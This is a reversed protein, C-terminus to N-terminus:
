VHEEVETKNSSISAVKHDRQYYEPPHPLPKFRLTFTSGDGSRSSVSIRGGNLEVLNKVISLGLGHGKTHATMANEARFFKDFINKQVKAPIGEGKDRVSIEVQNQGDYSAHITIKKESNSYKLSNEVLNNLITELHDPDVMVLPLRVESELNFTFGKSEVFEKNTKHYESLFANLDQPSQEVVTEGADVRAVDLLKDIMKRLRISERYIHEGYNRLREGETVRGDTINEGAAQMVALPTKLEHTINALFGAQRQAFEREKQANIFMFVLAGFLIIVAIGLLLLNRNVSAKAAAVTPSELYSAYLIWDGLMDHFRQRIDVLGRELQYNENSSILVENQMWDRLWVVMGSNETDGFQNMLKPRLVSNVLYDKNIMFTIHGVIEKQNLNILGLTMSRHADFEVKNNWRYNELSVTMIRSKSIGIADCVEKPVSSESEPQFRDQESNFRYIPHGLGWCGIKDDPVYYIDTFLSDEIAENLVERFHDPFSSNAQWSEQLDNMDLKNIGRFPYYFRYMVKNTFEELQLRQNEEASEITSERLAYLSYVNMGTLLLVAVIGIGLFFWRLSSSEKFKQYISKM